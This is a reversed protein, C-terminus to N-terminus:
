RIQKLLQKLLDNGTADCGSQHFAFVHGHIATEDRGIGIMVATDRALLQPFHSLHVVPHALQTM